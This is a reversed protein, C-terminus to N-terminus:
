PQRPNQEEQGTGTACCSGCGLATSCKRLEQQGGSQVTLGQLAGSCPSEQVKRANLGDADRSFM